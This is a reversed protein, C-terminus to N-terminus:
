AEAQERSQDLQKMARSCISECPDACNQCCPNAEGSRAMHDALDHNMFQCGDGLDHFGGKVIECPFPNGLPAERCYREKGRIECDMACLFCDHGGECGETTILSNPPYVRKPTGYASLQGAASEAATEQSGSGREGGEEQQSRAVAELEEGEPRKSLAYCELHCNGHNLCDWCCKEVCDTGDGPTRKAEESLTCQFKPRHFCWGNGAEPQSRAVAEVEAAPKEEGVLQAVTVTYSEAAAEEAQRAERQANAEEIEEPDIGPFESLSIQGPLEVYPIEKPKRMARIDEVRDAPTVQALQEDNLSLMEQLQGKNFERYQEQIETSNGGVSFRNNINIYRSTASNSFGYEHSAYDSISSYGGEEFLRHDRIYKLMYGIAIFNKAMNLLSGRIFERAEQYTPKHNGEQEQFDSETM